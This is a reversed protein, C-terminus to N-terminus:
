SDALAKDFDITLFVYYGDHNTANPDKDIPHSTPGCGESGSSYGEWHDDFVESVMEFHDGHNHVCIDGPRPVYYGPICGDEGGDLAHIEGYEPHEQLFALECRAGWNITDLSAMTKGPVLGINALNWLIYESCQGGWDSAAQEPSVQSKWYDVYKWPKDANTGNAWDDSEKKCSEIFKQTGNKTETTTAAAASTTTNTNKRWISRRTTDNQWDHNEWPQGNTDALQWLANGDGDNGLYQRAPASSNTGNALIDGKIIGAKNVAEASAGDELIIDKVYFWSKDQILTKSADWKGLTEPLQEQKTTTTTTSTNITATGNPNWKPEQVQEWNPTIFWTDDSSEFEHRDRHVDGGGGITWFGEDDVSEVMEVHAGEWMLLIDGPKPKIGPGNDYLTGADPNEDYWKKYNSPTTPDSPICDGNWHIATSGVTDGIVGIFM